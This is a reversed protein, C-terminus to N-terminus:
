NIRPPQMTRTQKYPREASYSRNLKLYLETQLNPYNKDCILWQLKNLALDEKYM